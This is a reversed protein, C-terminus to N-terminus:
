WGDDPFERGLVQSYEDELLWLRTEEYKQGEHAIKYNDQPDLVIVYGIRNEDPKVILLYSPEIGGGESFWVEFWKDDYISM